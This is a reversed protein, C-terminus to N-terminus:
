ISMNNYELHHYKSFKEYKVFFFQCIQTKYLAKVGENLHNYRSLLLTILSIQIAGKIEVIVMFTFSETVPRQYKVIVVPQVTFLSM